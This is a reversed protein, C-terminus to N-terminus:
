NMVDQGIPYSASDGGGVEWVVTRVTRPLPDRTSRTVKRVPGVTENSRPKLCEELLNLMKSLM